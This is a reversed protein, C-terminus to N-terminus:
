PRTEGVLHLQLAEFLNARELQAGFLNAEEMLVVAMRRQEVTAVRYEMM